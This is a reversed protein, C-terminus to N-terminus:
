RDVEGLVVDLSGNLAVVDAILHGKAMRPLAQLNCFSPPRMRFRYPSPWKGVSM